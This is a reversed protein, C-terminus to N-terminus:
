LKQPDMPLQSIALCTRPVQQPYFPCTLPEFELENTGSTPRAFEVPRWAQGLYREVRGKHLFILDVHRDRRGPSLCVAM